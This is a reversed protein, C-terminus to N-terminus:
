MVAWWDPDAMWSEAGVYVELVPHQDELSRCFFKMLIKAMM